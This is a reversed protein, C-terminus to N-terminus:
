PLLEEHGLAQYDDAKSAFKQHVLGKGDSVSRFAFGLSKLTEPALCQGSAQCRGQSAIGNGQSLLPKVTKVHITANTTYSQPGQLM